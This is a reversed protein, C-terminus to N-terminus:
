QEYTIEKVEVQPLLRNVDEFKLMGLDENLCNAAGCAVGYAAIKSPSFSKDVAYAIGATLCDGSGVPSVMGEIKVNAVILKGKYFLELGKSGRTLAVLEVRGSLTQLLDEMSTSGCLSKAEHENLHLGFFGVELANHLQKGTCDLITRKGFSKGIQILKAYTNSSVGKPWSGAMCLITTHEILRIYGLKFDEWNKKTLSPGPELIETNNFSKNDSLFTYCKRNNDLLNVGNTYVGKKLCQKKIWEGSSGGWFAYLMSESGLEALALAIHTAKGGPYEKINTIRNSEGPILKNLWAYSDISPNPCLSLIM